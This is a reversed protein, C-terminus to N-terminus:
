KNETDASHKPLTLTIQVRLLWRGVGEARLVNYYTGVQFSLSQGEKGVQFTKGVDLGIPITWRQDHSATWDATM